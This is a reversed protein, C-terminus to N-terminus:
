YISTRGTMEEFIRNGKKTLRYYTAGIKLRRVKEIFGLELAQSIRESLTRPSLALEKELTKWRRPNEKLLRLFEYTGKKELFRAENLNRLDRSEALGLTTMFDTGFAGLDRLPKDKGSYMPRLYGMENLLFTYFREVETDSLGFAAAIEGVSKQLGDQKCAALVAAAALGKEPKKGQEAEAKSANEYIALAVRRTGNPVDLVSPFEDIELLSQPLPEERPASSPFTPHELLPEHTRSQISTKRYTIRTEQDTRTAVFTAGCSHCISRGSLSSVTSGGCFPCYKANETTTSEKSNSENQKTAIV